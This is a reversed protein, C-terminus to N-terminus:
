VRTPQKSEGTEQTRWPFRGVRWTGAYISSNEGGIALTAARARHHNARPIEGIRQTSSNHPELNLPLGIDGLESRMVRVSAGIVDGSVSTPSAVLRISIHFLV